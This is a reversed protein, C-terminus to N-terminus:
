GRPQENSIMMDAHHLHVRLIRVHEATLQDEVEPGHREAFDIMPGYERRQAFQQIAGVYEEVTM